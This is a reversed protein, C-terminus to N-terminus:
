GQAHGAHGLMAFSALVQRPVDLGDHVNVIFQNVLHVDLRVVLLCQSEHM